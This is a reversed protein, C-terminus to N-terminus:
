MASSPTRPTGPWSPPWRSSSGPTTGAGIRPVSIGGISSSPWYPDQWVLDVPMKEKLEAFPRAIREQTAPAYPCTAYGAHPNSADGHREFLPEGNELYAAWALPLLRPKM